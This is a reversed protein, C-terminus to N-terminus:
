DLSWTAPARMYGQRSESWAKDFDGDPAYLDFGIVHDLVQLITRPKIGTDLSIKYSGGKLLSTDLEFVYKHEGVPRDELNLHESDTDFSRFLLTGNYYFSVNIHAPPIKEKLTTNIEVIVKSGIAFRSSESGSKDLLRVSSIFFPVDIEDFINSTNKDLASLYYNVADDANGQYIDRGQELVIGRNCLRRVAGMNHSVFLVTRGEGAVESMKGLCKKQFQADGVALVEDVVLIEPELHAAVAFGLRLAMGSSYHKVPTDIFKEVGAFDIIEDFKHDIDRRTMGLIAGNLYVNERGTLEQHFGTGVELLAGVRGYIDAFGESPETIRSLVKLMTSKGAGNHGIIGVVEGHNVEFSIDKLAWIEEQLGAAGYAQGRMLDYARKFPASLTKQFAERFTVNSQRLGGIRYMKGLNSVHIAVNSM